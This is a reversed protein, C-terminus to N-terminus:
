NKIWYTRTYDGLTNHECDDKDNHSYGGYAEAMHLAKELMICIGAKFEITAYADKRALQKNGYEVLEKLEITKRAM